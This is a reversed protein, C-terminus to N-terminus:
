VIAKAANLVRVATKAEDGLQVLRSKLANRKDGSIEQYYADDERPALGDEYALALLPGWPFGHRQLGLMAEESFAAPYVDAEFLDPQQGLAIEIM